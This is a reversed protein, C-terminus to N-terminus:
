DGSDYRRPMILKDATVPWVNDWDGVCVGPLSLAFSFFLLGVDDAQRIKKHERLIHTNYAIGTSL